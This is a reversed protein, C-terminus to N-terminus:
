VNSWRAYIGCPLARDGASESLSLEGHDLNGGKAKLTPLLLNYYAASSFGAAYGNLVMFVPTESLLQSCLELLKSLDEEIEWVEGTPGRGHSPPDMVIADYKKGRKIERKVFTVADDIIWRIADGDIGSLQQNRKAWAVSVKSGDVHTVKAGVQACALSAGGTYGFLNLVSVPEIASPASRPNTLSTSTIGRRKHETAITNQMWKWSTAHEPFLGTHKFTTPAIEFQLGAFHINWTEPLGRKTKWTTKKGERIFIGHAKNWDNASLTPSWLAQPDPRVLLYDGYRELKRGHGSDILEYDDSYNTHKM